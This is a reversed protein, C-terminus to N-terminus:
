NGRKEYKKRLMRLIEEEEIRKIIQRLKLLFFIFLLEYFFGSFILFLSTNLNM